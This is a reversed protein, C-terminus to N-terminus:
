ALRRGARAALVRDIGVALMAWLGIRVSVATVMSLRDIEGPGSLWVVYGEPIALLVAVLPVVFRRDRGFRRLSFIMLAFAAVALTLVDGFQGQNFLVDEVITPVVERHRAYDVSPSLISPTPNPQLPYYVSTNPHLNSATEGSFAPLPDVLTYRPHTLLFRVYTSEGDRNLWRTFRPVLPGEHYPLGSYKALRQSYPMGHAVFWATWQRDPLVRLQIISAINNRSLTQNHRVELLGVASIAVLGTVAAVRLARSARSRAFVIVGAVTIGLGFGVNAQRTLTWLLTVVLAAAVTAWGPSRAYRLWTAVLLATLSIATSESLIASNWSAVPGLVGLTLLVVRLGLQVRQDVVLRRAEAALFWWCCAAIIVQAAIRATDTPFVTYLLPVTPLRLGAGTLSLHTYSASDPYRPTRLGLVILEQVLVYGFFLLREPNARSRARVDESTASRRFFIDVQSSM